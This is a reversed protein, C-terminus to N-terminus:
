RSVEARWLLAGFPGYVRLAAGTDTPEMWADGTLGNVTATGIYARVEPYHVLASAIRAASESSWGDASRVESALYAPAATYPASM